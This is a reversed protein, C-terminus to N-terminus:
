AFIWTAEIATITPPIPAWAVFLLLYSTYQNSNLSDIHFVTVSIVNSLRYLNSPPFSNSIEFEYSDVPQAIHIKPIWLEIIWVKYIM